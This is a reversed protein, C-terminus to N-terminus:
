MCNSGQAPGKNCDTERFTFCMNNIQVVVEVVQIQVVVEVVQIQIVNGIMKTENLEKTTDRFSLHM